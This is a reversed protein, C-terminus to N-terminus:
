YYVLYTLDFQHSNAKIGSQFLTYNYTYSLIIIPISRETRMRMVYDVYAGEM